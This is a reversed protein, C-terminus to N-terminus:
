VSFLSHCHFSFKKAFTNKIQQLSIKMGMTLESNETYYLYVIQDDGYICEAGTEIGEKLWGETESEELSYLSKDVSLLEGNGWNYLFVDDIYMSSAFCSSLEKYANRYIEYEKYNM